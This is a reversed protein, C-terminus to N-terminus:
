GLGAYIGPLYRPADQSRFVLAGVIGGIGGLVVLCASAISRKGQGCINNAQYAMACPISANAASALLFLGFYQVGAVNPWTLLSLGVIAQIANWLVIPARVRYKDGVWGQAYMFVGAFFFPPTSLLQSIGVSYGMRQNLIIPAFYAIAYAM